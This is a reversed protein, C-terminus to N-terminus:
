KKSLIKDLTQVLFISVAVSATLATGEGMKYYVLSPIILVLLPLIHGWPFKRKERYPLGLPNLDRKTYQHKENINNKFFVITCFLEEFKLSLKRKSLNHVAVRLPGSWGPDVKTSIGSFGRAVISAKSLIMASLSGDKPMEVTERTVILATDGPELTILDDPKLEEIGEKEPSYRRYLGGVRLDYSMPTLCKEPDYPSIYIREDTLKEKDTCIRGTLDSYTLITM